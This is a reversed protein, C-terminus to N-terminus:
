NVSYASAFYDRAEEQAAAFLADKTALGLPFNKRETEHQLKKLKHLRNM